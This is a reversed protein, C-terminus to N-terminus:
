TSSVRAALICSVSTGESHPKETPCTRYNLSWKPLGHRPSLHAIFNDLTWLGLRRLTHAPFCASLNSISFFFVSHVKLFTELVSPTMLNVGPVYVTLSFHKPESSTM